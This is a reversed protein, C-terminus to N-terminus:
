SVTVSNSAATQASGSLNSGIAQVKFTHAGATLGSVTLIPNSTTGSVTVTGSSVPSVSADVFVKYTFPGNATAPATFTMSAIGAGGATAVPTGPTATTGGQARWGAGERLTRVAFGSVSDPFAEFTLKGQAETKANMSLKDPKIMIANPYIRAWASIGLPSAYIAGFILQRHVPYTVKPKTYQYGAQGLTGMAALPINSELCEVAPTREIATLMASESDDTFDTLLKQRSQWAKTDSTTLSPQFELGNEDFYGLATFGDTTLLTTSWDGTTTDFPTWAALSKTADYDRFMAFGFQGKFVNDVNGGFLTDWTTGTM